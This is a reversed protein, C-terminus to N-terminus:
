RLIAPGPRPSGLRLKRSPPGPPPSGARAPPVLAPEPHLSSYLDCNNWDRTVEVYWAEVEELGECWAQIKGTNPDRIGPKYASRTTFIKVARKAPEGDNARVNTNKLEELGLAQAAEERSWAAQEVLTSGRVVSKTVLRGRVDFGEPRTGGPPVTGCNCNLLVALAPPRTPVAPNAAFGPEVLQHLRRRAYLMEDVTSRDNVVFLLSRVTTPMYKVRLHDDQVALQRGYGEDVLFTEATWELGEHLLFEDIDTRWAGKSAWVRLQELFLSRDRFVVPYEAAVAAPNFNNPSPPKEPAKKAAREAHIEAAPREGIKQLFGEGPLSRPLSLDWGMWTGGTSERRADARAGKHSFGVLLRAFGGDSRWRPVGNEKDEAAIGAFFNYDEILHKEFVAAMIQVVDEGCGVVVCRSPTSVRLDGTRTLFAAPNSTFLSASMNSPLPINPFRAHHKHLRQARSDELARAALVPHLGHTTPFVARANNSLDRVM